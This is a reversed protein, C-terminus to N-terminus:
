RRLCAGLDDLRDCGIITCPLDVPLASSFYPDVAARVSSPKILVLHEAGLAGAIFAAISDSTVDWSHPLPDAARIWRSPALVVPLGRGLLEGIAGGDDVLVAGPIKSALVEAYQDM